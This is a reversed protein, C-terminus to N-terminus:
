AFRSVAAVLSTAIGLGAILVLACGGGSGASSKRAGARTRPQRESWSPSYAPALAYSPALPAFRPAAPRTNVWENSLEDAKAARFTLSATLASGKITGAVVITKGAGEAHALVPEFKKGTVASLEGVHAGDLYVYVTTREQGSKLVRTGLRLELFLLGEGSQPVYDRLVDFHDEERIVQASGGSPLLSSNTPPNNSPLVLHPEPLTVTCIDSSMDTWGSLCQKPTMGHPNDPEPVLMATTTEQTSQRPDSVRLAQKMEYRRFNTGAVEVPASGTIEFPKLM